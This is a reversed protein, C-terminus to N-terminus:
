KDGGFLWGKALGAAALLCSFIFAIGGLFGKYRAIENRLDAVASHFEARDDKMELAVAELREVTNTIRERMTALEASTPNDQM